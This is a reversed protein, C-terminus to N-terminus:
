LPKTKWKEKELDLMTMTLLFAM